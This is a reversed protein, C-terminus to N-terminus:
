NELLSGIEGFNRLDRLIDGFIRLFRIRRERWTLGLDILDLGQKSIM